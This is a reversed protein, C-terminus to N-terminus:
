KCKGSTDKKLQIEDEPERTPPGGYYRQEGSGEGQEPKKEEEEDEGTVYDWADQAFDLAQDWISESEEDMQLVAGGAGGSGTSGSSGDEKGKFLGLNRIAPSMQVPAAPELLTMQNVYSKGALDQKFQLTALDPESTSSAAEPARSKGTSYRHM